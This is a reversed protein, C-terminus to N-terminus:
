LLENIDYCSPETHNAKGFLFHIIGNVAWCVTIYAPMHGFRSIHAEVMWNQSIWIASLVMSVISVGVDVHLERTGRLYGWKGNTLVVFLVELCHLYWWNHICNQDRSTDM